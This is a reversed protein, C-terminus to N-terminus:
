AAPSMGAAGAPSDIRKMPLTVTFVAGQGLGGSAVALAGGHQETLHRAIGLSLGLGGRPRKAPLGAGRSLRQLVRPLEEASIGTGTDAVRITVREAERALSLTIRGGAGTFKVANHLLATVIQHVRHSDAMVAGIDTSYGCVLEIKKEDAAARIAEAAGRAVRALDTPRPTILLKGAKISTYDALACILAQQEDAGQKIAELGDRIAPAVDTRNLLVTSWLMMASLPTRLEHSVNALFEDESRAAADAEPPAPKSAHASGADEARPSRLIKRASSVPPNKEVSHTKKM